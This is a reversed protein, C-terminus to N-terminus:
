RPSATRARGLPGACCLFTVVFHSLSMAVGLRMGVFVAMTPHGMCVCVGRMLMLMHLVLVGVAVIAGLVGMPMHVLATKDLVM